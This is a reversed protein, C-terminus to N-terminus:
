GMNALTWIGFMSNKIGKDVVIGGNGYIFILILSLLSLISFIVFMGLTLHRFGM